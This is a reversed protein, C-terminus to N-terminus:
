VTESEGLQKPRNWPWQNTEFGKIHDHLSFAEKTNWARKVSQKVTKDSVYIGHECSGSWEFLESRKLSNIGRNQHQKLIFRSSSSGTLLCAQELFTEITNGYLRDTMLQKRQSISWDDFEIRIASFNASSDDMSMVRALFKALMDCTDEDGHTFNGTHKNVLQVCAIVNNNFIHRVQNAANGEDEKVERVVTEQFEFVPYCLITKTRYGSKVDFSSNFRSDKYADPVNAPKKNIVTSGAIGSGKPVRFSAEHGDAKASWLDGTKLDVMFFTARDCGIMDRVEQLASSIFYELQKTAVMVDTKEKIRIYQDWNKWRGFARSQRLLQKKQLGRLLRAVVKQAIFIDIEIGNVSITLGTESAKTEYHSM